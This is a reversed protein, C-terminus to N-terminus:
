VHYPFQGLERTFFLKKIYGLTAKLKFPETLGGVVVSEWALSQPSETRICLLYLKPKSLTIGKSGWDRERRLWLGREVTNEVMVRGQEM